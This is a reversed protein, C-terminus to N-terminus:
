FVQFLLSTIVRETVISLEQVLMTLSSSVHQCERLACYLYDRFRLTIRLSLTITM